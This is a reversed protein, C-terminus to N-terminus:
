IFIFLRISFRMSFYISKFNIHFLVCFKVQPYSGLDNLIYFPKSKEYSLFSLNKHFSSLYPNEFILCILGRGKVKGVPLRYYIFIYKLGAWYIVRNKGVPLGQGQKRRIKGKQATKYVTEYFCGPKAKFRM